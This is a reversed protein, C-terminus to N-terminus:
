IHGGVHHSAMSGATIRRLSAMIRTTLELFPMVLGLRTHRSIAHRRPAVGPILSVLYYEYVHDLHNRLQRFDNYDIM